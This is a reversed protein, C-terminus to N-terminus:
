TLLEHHYQLVTCALIWLILLSPTDLKLPKALSMSKLSSIVVELWRLISYKSKRCLLLCSDMVLRQKDICVGILAIASLVPQGRSYMIILILIATCETARLVLFKMLNLYRQLLDDRYRIHPASIIGTSRSIMQNNDTKIPYKSM